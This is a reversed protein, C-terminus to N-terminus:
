QIKKIENIEERSISCGKFQLAYLLAELVKEGKMRVLGKKYAVYILESSRVIKCNKLFSQRKKSLVVKTHLKKELLKRLNEPKECLMRTTREDISNVHEVGREHLIKSLALCTAEGMDIIHVDKKRAKFLSNSLDLIQNALTNIEQRKVGLVSPLELVKDQFLKQLKLAELEFRKIKLPNDIAEKKVEMPIIFKGNFIEKLKRLEPLLGNMALTILTSADFIIIKNEGVFINEVLKIRQKVSVTKGEPMEAIGTKGAYEALEYQTVGLLKATKEMSIGHEYVRSAKSISAKRFVDQIYKRLNGSIKNISKRILEFSFRFDKDNKEKLAKVSKNLSSIVTEFFLDWGRFKKYRSREIIKGLGYVIVAVAVNKPDQNVSASHITQNSLKKLKDSDDKEIAIKTEELIRLINERNDVEEMYVFFGCM